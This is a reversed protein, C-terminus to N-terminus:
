TPSANHQQATNTKNIKQVIHKKKKENEVRRPAEAFIWRNEKKKVERRGTAARRGTSGSDVVHQVRTRAWYM